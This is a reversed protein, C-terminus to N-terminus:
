PFRQRLGLWVGLQRRRADINGRPIQGYAALIADVDARPLHKLDHTTAPFGNPIAGTNDVLPEIAIGDQSIQGNILRSINRSEAHRLVQQGRQVANHNHQVIDHIEQLAHQHQQFDDRLGQVADQLPRLAAAFWAPAGAGAYLHAAHESVIAHNRIAASEVEAVIVSPAALNARKLKKRARSDDKARAIDAVDVAGGAVVLPARAPAVNLDHANALDPLPPINAGDTAM